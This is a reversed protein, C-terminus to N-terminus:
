PLSVGCTRAALGSHRRNQRPRSSGLNRGSGNRTHANTGVVVGSQAGKRINIQGGDPLFTASCMTAARSTLFSRMAVPGAARGSANSIRSEGNQWRFRRPAPHHFNRRVHMWPDERLARGEVCHPDVDKAAYQLRQVAFRAPFAHEDGARAEHAPRALPTRRAQEIAKAQRFDVLDGQKAADVPVAPCRRREIPQGVATLRVVRRQASEGVLNGPGAARERGVNEDRKRHRRIKEGLCPRRRQPQMGLGSRECTIRKGPAHEEVM